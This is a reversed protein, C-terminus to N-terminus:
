QSVTFIFTVTESIYLVPLSSCVHVPPAFESWVILNVIFIFMHRHHEDIPSHQMLKEYNLDFPCPFQPRQSFLHIGTSLTTKWSLNSCSIKGFIKLIGLYKRFIKLDPTINYHLNPQALSYILNKLHFLPCM